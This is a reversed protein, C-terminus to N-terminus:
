KQIGQESRSGAEAASARGTLAKSHNEERPRNDGAGTSQFDAPPCHGPRSNALNAPAWLSSALGTGMGFVTTLSKVGITNAEVSLTPLARKKIQVKGPLPHAVRNPGLPGARTTKKQWAGKGAPPTRPSRAPEGARLPARRKSSRGPTRSGGRPHSRPPAVGPPRAKRWPSPTRSRSRGRPRDRPSTEFSVPSGASKAVSNKAAFSQCIEAIGGIISWRKFPPTTKASLGEELSDQLAV